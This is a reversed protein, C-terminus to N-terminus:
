TISRKETSTPMRRALDWITQRHNDYLWTLLESAEGVPLATLPIGGGTFWIAVTGSEEDFVFAHKEGVLTYTPKPMPFGKKVHAGM